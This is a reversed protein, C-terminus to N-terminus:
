RDDPKGKPNFKLGLQNIATRIPAYVPNKISGWEVLHAFPDENWVQYGGAVKRLNFAAKFWGHRIPRRWPWSLSRGYPAVEQATGEIMEAVVELARQMAPDERLFQRMTGDNITIKVRAM